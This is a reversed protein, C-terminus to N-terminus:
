TPGDIEGEARSQDIRDSAVIIILMGVCALLVGLGACVVIWGIVGLASTVHELVHILLDAM